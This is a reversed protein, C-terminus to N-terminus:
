PSGIIELIEADCINKVAQSTENHDVIILKRKPSILIEEQFWGLTHETM